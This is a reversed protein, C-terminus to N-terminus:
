SLIKGTKEIIGKISRKEKARSRIWPRMKSNTKMDKYGRKVQFM